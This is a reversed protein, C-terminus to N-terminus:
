RVLAIDTRIFDTGKALLPENRHKALAYSFCDGFNLAAPHRGKGFARYAELALEALAKDIPSIDIDSREILESLYSLGEPGKRGLVAIGAELLNAASMVKKSQLSLTEAFAIADDEEFLIALVASTDVVM